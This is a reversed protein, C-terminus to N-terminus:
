HETKYMLHFTYSSYLINIHCHYKCYQSYTTLSKSALSAQLGIAYNGNFM